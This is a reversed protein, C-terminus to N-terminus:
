TDGEAELRDQENWWCPICRIKKRPKRMWHLCGCETKMVFYKGGREGDLERVKIVDRFPAKSM